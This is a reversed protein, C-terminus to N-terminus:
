ILNSVPELEDGWKEEFTHPLEGVDRSFIGGQLINDSLMLTSVAAFPKIKPKLYKEYAHKAGRELLQDIVSEGAELAESEAFMNFPVNAKKWEPVSALGVFVGRDSNKRLSDTM